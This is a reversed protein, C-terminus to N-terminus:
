SETLVNVGWLTIVTVCLHTM